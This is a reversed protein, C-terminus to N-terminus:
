SLADFLANAGDILAAGQSESLVAYLRAMAQDTAADVEVLEARDADTMEPLEAYGFLGIDDPRRIAHAVAPELASLAIAALHVSGRLERLCIANHMALGAADTPAPEGAYGAYLSLSAPHATNRVVEAAQNFGELVTADISAFAQRGIGYACQLLARAADRPDVIDKASTWMKSILEPTFYGFASEIVAPEVDGLVGGRGLVYFRFGDLGMEKGKALTDPHFYYVGGVKGLPASTAQAVETSTM